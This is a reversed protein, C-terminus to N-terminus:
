CQQSLKGWLRVRVGLETRGKTEGKSQSTKLGEKENKEDM